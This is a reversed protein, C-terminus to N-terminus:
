TSAINGWQDLAVVTLTFPLGQYVTPPAEIRDAEFAGIDPLGGHARLSGRQDAPLSLNFDAAHLAAERCSPTLGPRVATTKYPLSGRIWRIPM